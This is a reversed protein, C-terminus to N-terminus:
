SNFVRDGKERLKNRGKSFLGKGAKGAAMFLEKGKTGVQGSSHGLGSLSHQLHPIHIHTPAWGGQSPGHNNQTAAQTSAHAAPVPHSLVDNAHEPHRSMMEELWEELGTKVASFQWRTENYHKIREAPLPMEMINRFGVINTPSPAGSPELRRSQEVGGFVPHQELPPSPSVPHSSEQIAIKEEALSRRHAGDQRDALDSIPSPPQKPYGSAPTPSLAPGPHVEPASEARLDEASKGGESGLPPQSMETGSPTDLKAAPSVMNEAGSGLVKQEVLHETAPPSVTASAPEMRVAEWSFRRQTEGVGGESGSALEPVNAPVAHSANPSSEPRHTDTSLNAKGEVTEAPQPLPDQTVTEPGSPKGLTLMSPEGKDETTAWYDGYVDGLYSSERTPDAAAARYAATSGPIADSLGSAPQVPSLSKIIEESLMDSDNIPSHSSGDSTPDREFEPPSLVPQVNNNGDPTGRRSKLPATPLIESDATATNEAIPSSPEAVFIGPSSSINRDLAESTAQEAVRDSKSSLAPSSTRVQPAPDPLTPHTPVSKNDKAMCVESAGSTEKPEPQRSASVDLSAVKPRADGLGAPETAKDLAERSPGTVFSAATEGPTSPTETVWGGPLHPRIARAAPPEEAGAALVQPEDAAPTQPESVSPVPKAADQHLGLGLPSPLADAVFNPDSGKQQVTQTVNLDANRTRDVDQPPSVADQQSSAEAAFAPSGDPDALNQGPSPLQMSDSLPSRLGSAPFFSSSSFLDEGFGSVRSLDPLQPSTSFRRLDEHSSPATPKQFGSVSPKGQAVAPGPHPAETSYSDLLGELGYESKREAVPPLGGASRLGLGTNNDQTAPSDTSRAPIDGHLELSRREQAKEEEMRRYVDAPRVFPLPKTPSSVPGISPPSASRAEQTHAVTSPGTNSGQPPHQSPLPHASQLGPSARTPNPSFRPQTLGPTDHPSPGMPETARRPTAGTGPSPGSDMEPQGLRASLPTAHQQPQTRLPPSGTPQFQRSTPSFTAAHRPGMPKPPPAPPPEQDDEPDDYDAGWEDGDYNQPKFNAWKRTKQRNVNVKYQNGSPTPATPSRRSCVLKSPPRTVLPVSPSQCAGARPFFM